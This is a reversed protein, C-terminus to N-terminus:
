YHTKIQLKLTYTSAIQGIEHGKLIDEIAHMCHPIITENLVKQEEKSFKKLVYHSVQSKDQPKGIGIRVRIYDKDIHADLSKLGNHGGHGGGIKFKVTGFPLDLDDHIAIIHTNDIKYYNKVATLSEGSLNMYTHPKVYLIQRYKLVNAKFNAHNIHVTNSAPLESTIADVV